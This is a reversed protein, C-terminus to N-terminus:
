NAVTAQQLNELVFRAIAYASLIVILGVIGASILKKAEGVKEEEGGATMWKFGGLLIIVVAIVGLFGLLVNLIDAITEKLPKTGLNTDTLANIGFEDGEPNFNDGAVGGEDDQAWVQTGVMAIPMALALLLGFVVLNKKLLFKKM